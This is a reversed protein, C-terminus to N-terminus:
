KIKEKAGVKELKMGVLAFKVLKKSRSFLFVILSTLLGYKNKTHPYWHPEIISSQKDIIISKINVFSLLGWEGKLRGFGSNKIGGFPLAPNAETLMCNNISVNGAAISKAVREARELDKSWVSASLGYPSDNALQIAEKETKFKMVPLIPGFTEETVIKMTHNVDTILTPPFHLSGPKRKGGALIKAGKQVADLIHAEVIQTQAESTMCGMDCDGAEFYNRNEDSLKLKCINYSLKSVLEDYISEQIYVREISTCSQGCNTFSGWLLGNATREINVDEFVVAPDKGGLELDVPTLQKAAQEMIKKGTAVSGTFHIKDPKADILIKGTEKGGYIVQVADKLFGSEEIIKEILGKLPTIESPKIISVNGSLFASISPLLMQYFPYNWPTIILITGLPEFVVKSKKGMLVIPTHVKKDKLIEPAVKKFHDITDCVELIESSLADFRSKGTEEVIRTIIEERHAIVYDNIKLIEEVRKKMPMNKVVAQMRRATNYAQEIQQNSSESIEYLKKKNIPNQISFADNTTM